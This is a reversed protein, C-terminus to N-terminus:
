ARSLMEETRQRVVLPCHGSLFEATKSDKQGEVNFAFQLSYLCFVVVVAFYIM